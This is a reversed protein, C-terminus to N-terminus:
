RLLNAVHPFDDFFFNDEDVFHSLILLCDALPALLLELIFTRKILLLKNHFALDLRHCFKAFVKLNRKLLYVQLKHLEFVADLACDVIIHRLSALFNGVYLSLQLTQSEILIELLQVGFHQRRKLNKLVLELFNWIVM